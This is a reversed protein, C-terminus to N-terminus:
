AARQQRIFVLMAEVVQEATRDGTDIAVAGAPKILPGVQRTRDLGDRFELQETVQARPPESGYMRSLEQQRRKARVDADADLLFKYDARPFVVSGTDRGEAVVGGM